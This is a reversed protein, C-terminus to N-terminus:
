RVGLIVLAKDSNADFAKVLGKVLYTGGAVM